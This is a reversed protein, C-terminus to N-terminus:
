VSVALCDKQKLKLKTFQLAYTPFYLHMAGLAMFIFLLQEMNNKTKM